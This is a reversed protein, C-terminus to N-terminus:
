PKKKTSAGPVEGTTKGSRAINKGTEMREGREAAPDREADVGAAVADSQTGTNANQRPENVTARNDTM